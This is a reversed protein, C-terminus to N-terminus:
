KQERYEYAWKDGKFVGKTFKLEGGLGVLALKTEWMGKVLTNVENNMDNIIQAKSKPSLSEWLPDNDVVFDMRFAKQQRAYSVMEWHDGNM